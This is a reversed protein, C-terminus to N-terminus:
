ITLSMAGFRLDVTTGYVIQTVTCYLLCGISTFKWDDTFLSRMVAFAPLM